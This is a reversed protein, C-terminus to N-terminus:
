AKPLNRVILNGATAIMGLLIGVVLQWYKPQISKILTMFAQRDFTKSKQKM